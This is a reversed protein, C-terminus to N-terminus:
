EQEGASAGPVHEAGAGAARAQAVERDYYNQVTKAIELTVADRVNEHVTSVTKSYTRMIGDVDAWKCFLQVKDRRVRRLVQPTSEHVCGGRSVRERTEHPWTLHAAQSIYEMNCPTLEIDLNNNRAASTRVCISHSGLTGMSPFTLIISHPVGEMLEKRPKKIVPDAVAEALPDASDIHLDMIIKDVRENRLALAFDLFTIGEWPSRQSLNLGIVNAFGRDNKRITFFTKGDVHKLCSADPAWAHKMNPGEVIVGHRISFLM